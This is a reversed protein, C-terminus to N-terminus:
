LPLLPHDRTDTKSKNPTRRPTPSSEPQSLDSQLDRGTDSCPPESSPFLPATHGLLSDRFNVVMMLSCDNLHEKMKKIKEQSDLNLLQIIQGILIRRSEAMGLPDYNPHDLHPNSMKVVWKLKLKRTAGLSALTIGSSHLRGTM